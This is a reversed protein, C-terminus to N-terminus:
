EVGKMSGRIMKSNSKSFLQPTRSANKKKFYYGYEEKM